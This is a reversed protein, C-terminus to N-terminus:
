ININPRLKRKSLKMENSSNNRKQAGWVIGREREKMNVTEKCKYINEKSRKTMALGCFTQCPKYFFKARGGDVNTVGRQNRGEKIM